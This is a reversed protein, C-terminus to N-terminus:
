GRKDGIGELEKIESARVLETFPAPRFRRKQYWSLAFLDYAGRWLRNWIGYKSIGAVRPRHNVPMELTAVGSGEVLIPLFRHFGNFPFIGELASRRFVRMACGTDQFDAGLMLKRAHRAVISSKRRIFTDARNVRRGCVFEYRQLEALMKRLDRPDNQLDGDLTAIIPSRSFQIGTWLAASQGSNRALRIGHVHHNRRHAENIQEWTDDQSADDVFLLEYSSTEEKMAVSVEEALPLVNEGENFVPVIISIDPV